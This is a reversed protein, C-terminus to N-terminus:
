DHILHVCTILSRSRVGAFQDDGIYLGLPLFEAPFSGNVTIVTRGALPGHNPWVDIVVPYESV